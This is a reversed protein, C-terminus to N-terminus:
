KLEKLFNEAQSISKELSEASVKKSRDTKNTFRKEEGNKFIINVGINLKGSEDPEGGISMYVKSVRDDTCIFKTDKWYIVNGM